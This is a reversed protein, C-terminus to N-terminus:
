VAHNQPEHCTGACDGGEAETRGIVPEPIRGSQSLGVKDLLQEATKVAEEKPVNNIMVPAHIINKLVTLHPFLNFNQFVMGTKRCIRRVEGDKKYVGNEVIAEGDIRVTGGNILELHNLCRLFTSKGSGSPGIIGIVEGQEVDLSVGKLVELKGFSKTIDQATLIGM